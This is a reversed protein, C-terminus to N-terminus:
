SDSSHITKLKESGLFDIIDDYIPQICKDEKKKLSSSTALAQLSQLETIEESWVLVETGRAKVRHASCGSRIDAAGTVAMQEWQLVAMPPNVRKGTRIALSQTETAAHVPRAHVQNRGGRQQTVTTLTAHFEHPSSQPHVPSHFVWSWESVM